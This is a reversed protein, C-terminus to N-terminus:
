VCVCRRSAAALLDSLFSFECPDWESEQGLLVQQMGASGSAAANAAAQALLLTLKADLDVRHSTTAVARLVRQMTRPVGAALLLHVRNPDCCCNRLAQALLVLRQLDPGREEGEGEREREEEATATATTATSTSVQLFAEALACFAAGVEVTVDVEGTRSRALLEQCQALEPVDTADTVGGM